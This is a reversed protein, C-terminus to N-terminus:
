AAEEYEKILKASKTEGKSKEKDNKLKSLENYLQAPTVNTSSPTTIKGTELGKIDKKDKKKKTRRKRKKIRDNKILRKIISAMMKVIDDDAKDSKILYKRGKYIIYRKNGIKILKTNNPIELK